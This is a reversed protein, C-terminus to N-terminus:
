SITGANKGAATIPDTSLVCVDDGVKIAGCDMGIGPRMVVDDRRTGIESLVIDQLQKNTLKGIQKTM